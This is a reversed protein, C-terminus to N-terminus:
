LTVDKNKNILKEIKEELKIKKLMYQRAYEILSCVTFVIAVQLISYPILYISNKYNM